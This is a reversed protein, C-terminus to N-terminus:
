IGEWRRNWLPSFSCLVSMKSYMFWIKWLIRTTRWRNWDFYSMERCKELLFCYRYHSIIAKMSFSTQLKPLHGSSKDLPSQHLQVECSRKSLKKIWPSDPHKATQVSLNIVALASHRWYAWATNSPPLRVWIGVTATDGRSSDGYMHDWM